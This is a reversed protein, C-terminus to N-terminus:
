DKKKRTLTFNQQLYELEDQYCLVPDTYSKNILKERIEEMVSVWDESPPATTPLESLLEIVYRYTDSRNFCMRIITEDNGGKRTDEMCKDYEAKKAKLKAIVQSLSVEKEVPLAASKEEYYIIISQVIEIVRGLSYDGKRYGYAATRFYELLSEENIEPIDDTLRKLLLPRLQTKVDFVGKVEVPQKPVYYGYTECCSKCVFQLKACGTILSKCVSCTNHYNGENWRYILQIEIKDDEVPQYLNEKAWNQYDPHVLTSPQSALQQEWEAHKNEALIEAPRVEFHYEESDMGYPPYPPIFAEEPEIWETVAYGNDKEIITKM